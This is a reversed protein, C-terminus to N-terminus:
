YVIVNTEVGAGAAVDAVATAQEVLKLAGEAPVYVNVKGCVARALVM